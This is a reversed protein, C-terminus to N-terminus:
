ILKKKKLFHRKHLTYSRDPSCCFIQGVRTQHKFLPHLDHGNVEIVLIVMWRVLTGSVEYEPINRLNLVFIWIDLDNRQPVHCWTREYGAEEFIIGFDIEINVRLGIFIDDVSEDLREALSFLCKVCLGQSSCLLVIRCIEPLLEPEGSVADTGLGALQGTRTDDRQWSVPPALPPVLAM